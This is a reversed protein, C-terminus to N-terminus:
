FNIDAKSYEKLWFILSIKQCLQFYLIESSRRWVWDRLNTELVVTSGLQLREGKTVTSGMSWEKRDDMGSWKQKRQKKWSVSERLSNGAITKRISQQTKQPAWMGEGGWIDSNLSLIWLSLHKSSLLVGLYSGPCYVQLFVAIRCYCAQFVGIYSFFLFSVKFWRYSSM